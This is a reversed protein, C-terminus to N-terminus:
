GAKYQMSALLHKGADTLRYKQKSSKPKKPITMEILDSELAPLLYSKRFHEDDKLGLTNQLEQRSMEGKFVGLLRVEPTVEPTVQDRSPGSKIGGEIEQDMKGGFEPVKIIMRFVDAEILEPDAGGYAQGYKMMNRMGSGLEDARHIERFFAAIVPNKPFPTFTAPNLTGFGHPKNSNETRVQGREIILKAPFAHTYERHILINSAIERFVFPLALCSNNLKEFHLTLCPNM